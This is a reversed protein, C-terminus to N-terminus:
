DSPGPRYRFGSELVLKVFELQRVYPFFQVKLGDYLPMTSALGIATLSVGVTVFRLSPRTTPAAPFHLKYAVICILSTMLAMGDWRQWDWGVLNMAQPALAAALFALCLVVRRARPAAYLERISYAIVFLFGPMFATQGEAALMRAGHWRWYAPVSVAFNRYASQTLVTFADPRLWFDSHQLAFRQLELYRPVSLASISVVVSIVLLTALLASSGFRLFDQTTPTREGQARLWHCLAIFLACPGFMVVLGEHIFPLVLFTATIGWYLASRHQSKVAWRLLGLVALLGIFDFYGVIHALFLTGPSACTVLVVARFTWDAERTRLAQRTVIFLTVGVAILVLFSFAVFVNYRYVYDGGIRRAIEGVLARKTFGQSYNFTFHTAAWRGPFRFGKAITLALVLSALWAFARDVNRFSLPRLHASERPTDNADATSPRIESM